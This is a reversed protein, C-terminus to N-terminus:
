TRLMAQLKRALRLSVSWQRALRWVLRGLGAVPTFLQFVMEKALKTRYRQSFASIHAVVAGVRRTLGVGRIRILYYCGILLVTWCKRRRLGGATLLAKMTIPEDAYMPNDNPILKRERLVIVPTKVYELPGLLCMQVCLLYDQGYCGGLMGKGLAERRYLGYLVANRRIGKTFARVREAAGVAAIHVENSIEVLGARGEAEVLIAGHAMVARTNRLLAEICAAVATLPRVDDVSAWMFYDGSSLEFVRRFNAYVGINTLNRYYRVRPDRAAYEQCITATADMSANDSIILELHGYTQGLLSELARRILREGNYVPIGVSVLPQSKVM